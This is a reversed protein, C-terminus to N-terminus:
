PGRNKGSQSGCQHRTTPGRLLGRVHLMTPVTSAESWSENQLPSEGCGAFFIVKRYCKSLALKAWPPVQGGGM